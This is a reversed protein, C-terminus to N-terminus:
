IFIMAKCVQVLFKIFQTHYYVGKIGVRQSASASLDRFGAKNVYLELIAFSCLNYDQRVFLCFIKHTNGKYTIHYM